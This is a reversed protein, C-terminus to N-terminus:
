PQKELALVRCAALDLAKVVAPATAEAPRSYEPATPSGLLSPPNALSESAVAFLGPVALGVLLRRRLRRWPFRSGSMSDIRSSQSIGARSTAACTQYSSLTWAPLSPSLMPGGLM